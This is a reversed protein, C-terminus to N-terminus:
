ASALRAIIYVVALAALVPVPAFAKPPDGARLHFTLAGAMLLVIGVAAAVGILPVALGVLLGIVAAIELGGIQQFRNWPLGFHEAADRMAKVGALKSAGAGTFAVALVVTLIIALAHM